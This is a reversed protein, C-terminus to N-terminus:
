FHRRRDPFTIATITIIVRGDDRERRSEPEVRGVLLEDEVVELVLGGAEGTRNLDGGLDVDVLQVWPVEGTLVQHHM